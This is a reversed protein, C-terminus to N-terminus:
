QVVVSVLISESGKGNPNIGFIIVEYKTISKLGTLILKHNTDFAVVMDDITAPKVTVTKRNFVLHNLNGQPAALAIYTCCNKLPFVELEIVGQAVSKVSKIVVQNPESRKSKGTKSPMFGGSEILTIDGQAIRSVCDAEEDLLAIVKLRQAKMADFDAKSGKIANQILKDFKDCATSLTSIPVDPSPFAANGTLKTVVQHGFNCLKANPLRKFTKLSKSNSM